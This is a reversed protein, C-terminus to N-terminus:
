WSVKIMVYYVINFMYINIIYTKINSPLEHVNIFLVIVVDLYKNATCCWLTTVLRIYGFLLRFSDLTSLFPAFVTSFGPPPPPPSSYLNVCNLSVPILQSINKKPPLPLALDMWNISASSSFSLM